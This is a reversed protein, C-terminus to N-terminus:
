EMTAIEYGTRAFDELRQWRVVQGHAFVGAAHYARARLPVQAAGSGWRQSKSALYGSAVTLALMLAIRGWRIGGDEDTVWRVYFPSEPNSGPTPGAQPDV